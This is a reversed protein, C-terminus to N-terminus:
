KSTTCRGTIEGVFASVGDMLGWGSVTKTYGAKSQSPFMTWTEVVSKTGDMSIGFISDATTSFFKALDSGVVSSKDGDIYVVFKSKSMGDDEFALKSYNKAAQGKLHEVIYCESGDSSGFCMALVLGSVFRFRM